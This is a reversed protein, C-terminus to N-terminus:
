LGIAGLVLRSLFKHYEIFLMRLSFKSRVADSVVTTGPPAARAVELAARRMHWDSTVLRLSGIRERAVWQAVERANGVTDTAEYGLTICCAMLDPKVAHEAAFEHPKVERAVGSVFMRRAWGKGLVELGRAIRGGSGTLVVVAESRAAPAPQPLAIAFWIFGIMWGLLVVSIARRIM